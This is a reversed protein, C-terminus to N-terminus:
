VPPPKCSSCDYIYKADSIQVMLGDPDPLTICEVQDRERTFIQVDKFGADIARKGDRAADFNEVAIGYSNQFMARGPTKPDGSAAKFSIFEGNFDLAFAGVQSPALPRLNSPLAFMKQYFEKSRKLDSVSISLHSFMRPKFLPNAPPPMSTGAPPPECHPCKALYKTDMVQVQHRDPDAVFLWKDVDTDVTRVNQFGADTLRQGEKTSNFNECSFCFHNVMGAKDKATQQLSLFRDNFYLGNTRASQPTTTELPPFGFLKQYFAASAKLDSVHFAVHSIFAPKLVGPTLAQGFAPFASAAVGAGALGALMKRRSPGPHNVVGATRVKDGSM